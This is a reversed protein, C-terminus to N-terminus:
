GKFKIRPTANVVFCFKINSKLEELSCVCVCMCMYQSIDQCVSMGCVCVNLVNTICSINYM